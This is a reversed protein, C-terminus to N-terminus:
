RSVGMALSDFDFSTGVECLYGGTARWQLWVVAQFAQVPLAIHKAAKRYHGAIWEYERPKVISNEASKDGLFCCKAHRDITVTPIDTPYDENPRLLNLYFSRVKNGGLVELPGKGSLIRSCKTVNRYGYAGYMGLRKNGSAYDSLLLTAERKNVEWNLGPSLAAIVGCSSELSIHFKLSLKRAFDNARPYWTIGDRYLHSNASDFCRLLNREYRKSYRLKSREM